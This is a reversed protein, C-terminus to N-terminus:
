FHITSIDWLLGLHTIFNLFGIEKILNKLLLVMFEADFWFLYLCPM